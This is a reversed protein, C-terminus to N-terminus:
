PSTPETIVTDITLNPKNHYHTEPQTEAPQQEPQESM